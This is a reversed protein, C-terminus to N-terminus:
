NPESRPDLPEVSRLMIKEELLAGSKGPVLTRLEYVEGPVADSLTFVYHKGAHQGMEERHPDELYPTVTIRRGETVHGQYKLKVPKVEAADELAVKIANQFYRASGGTRGQMDSVDRQLFVSIVPNGEVDSLPPMYVNRVGTFYDIKVSRKGQDDPIVRMDITDEFSEELSGRKEFAYHLVSPQEIGELHDSLFLLKNAKSFEDEEGTQTFGIAPALVLLLATFVSGAGFGRRAAMGVNITMTRKM